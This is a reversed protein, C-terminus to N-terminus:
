DIAALGDHYLILLPEVSAILVYLTLDVKCGYVLLPNGIYEQLLFHPTKDSEKWSTCARGVRSAIGLHEIKQLLNSRKANGKLNGAVIKM